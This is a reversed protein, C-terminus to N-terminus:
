YHSVTVKDKPYKKLLKSLKAKEDPSLTITNEKTVTDKKDLFAAKGPDLDEQLCVGSGVISYPGVKVGPTLSSNIGANCHDGMIVGLKHIGSDVKKGDVMVNVNKEDFRLNGTTAGSGFLCNDSIISDGVYNMHFLCNDGILSTKVETTFGVFCNDGISAGGRVLSNNGIVTNEGIYCPGRVVANEL